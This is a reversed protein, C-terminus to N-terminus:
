ILDKRFQAPTNCQWSVRQIPPVKLIKTQNKCYLKRSFSFLWQWPSEIVTEVGDLVEADGGNPKVNMEGLFERANAYANVVKERTNKSLASQHRSKLDM